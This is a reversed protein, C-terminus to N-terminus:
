PRPPLGAPHTDRRLAPWAGTRTRSTPSTSARRKPGGCWRPTRTRLRSTLTTRTSRSSSSERRAYADQLAVLGDEAAKVAPCGNCSFVIALLEKGAFSAVSYRSGDVGLLCEFDPACGGLAFAEGGKRQERKSSRRFSRSSVTPSRTPGRDHARHLDRRLRRRGGGLEGRAPRRGREEDADIRTSCTTSTRRRRIRIPGASSPRSRGPTATGLPTRRRSRPKTAQSRRTSSSLRSRSTSSSSTPSAPAQPRATSPSSRTGSTRRTRSCVRRPRTPM